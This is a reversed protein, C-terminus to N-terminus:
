PAFPVRRIELGTKSGTVFVHKNLVSPLGGAFGGPTYYWADLVEKRFAAFQTPYLLPLAPVDEAILRQMRAVLRM